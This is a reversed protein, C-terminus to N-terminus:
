KDLSVIRSHSRKRESLIRKQIKSYKKDKWAGFFRDINGQPVSVIRLIVDSFSESDRKAQKLRNYAEDSLSVHKVV